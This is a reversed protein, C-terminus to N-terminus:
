SGRGGGSRRREEWFGSEVVIPEEGVGRGSRPIMEEAVRGQRAIV